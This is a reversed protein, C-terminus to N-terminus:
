SRASPPVTSPARAARLAEEITEAVPMVEALHVLEFVRRVVGAGCTVAVAVGRQSAERALACLAGVTVADVLTAPGFDLILVSTCRSLAEATRAGFEPARAIDWEGECVVVTHNRIAV